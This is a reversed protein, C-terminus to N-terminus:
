YDDHTGGPTSSGAHFVCGVHSGDGLFRIDQDRDLLGKVFGGSLGAGTVFMGWHLHCTAPEDADPDAFFREPVSPVRRQVIYDGTTATVVRAAWEQESVLWGAVVGQGAHGISPKLVLEDRHRLVYEALSGTTEADVRDAAKMSRTWPLARDITRREHPTLYDSNRPDSLMAMGAKTGYLDANLPTFLGVAGVRVAEALPDLLDAAGDEEAVTKFLFTRYVADIREGHAYLGARTLELDKVTCMIIKYDLDVMLDTFLSANVTIPSSVWDVLAITPRDALGLGTVARLTDSMRALPDVYYVGAARAFEAFAPDSLSARCLEGFEFSGLSSSTNFEVMQFASPGDVLDARGLPVVPGSLLELAARASPQTWGLARAFILEDGGFLRHPLAHLTRLLLSLDEDLQRTQAADLFAPRTLLPRTFWARFRQYAPTTTDLCRGAGRQPALFDRTPGNEASRNMLGGRADRGSGPRRPHAGPHGQQDEPQAARRTRPRRPDAEPSHGDAIELDEISHVLHDRVMAADANAGTYRLRIGIVAAPVDPDRYLVLQVDDVGDVQAANALVDGARVMGGCLKFNDDARGAVEFADGAGCPCDGPSIRDGLRFRLAPVPWGEGVRTLLAGDDHPELFQDPLLHLAGLRCEPYSVGVVFTEISGYNGWLGAAPFAARIAAVRSRTMPEGAWIVTRIPLDVGSARVTDAFRALVNPAGAIANVQLGIIDDVWEDFEASDLAGMPAVMARCQVALANYFYQAGWMKGTSFLNLLVDGTRLPRWRALVRPVGLDPAIVTLKPQATTGGSCVVLGGAARGRAAAVAGLETHTWPPGTLMEALEVSGITGTM